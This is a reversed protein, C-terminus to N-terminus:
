ASVGKIITFNVIPTDSATGAVSVMTVRFSTGNTIQSCNAIYTNTGGRVTLVVTDTVAIGTNPVTFSFYTGVVAAATFVTIAGCPDAGTTPTTTTRSITQTVATGAGTAYGIGDTGSSLISGSSAISGVVDLRVAPTVTGLGVRNNGADVYLTNTDVTLDASIIASGVVDLKATPTDIGIGVSGTASVVFPSADPSTSDEVVLANGTGIQTITLGASVSDLAISAAGAVDLRVTPSSIGIGVFGAATVVFPTSDPSASDEVLLANGAGTQTIKLGNSASSLAINVPGAVDLLASPSETGIGVNGVSDIRMREAYTSAGTRTHFVLHNDYNSATSLSAITWWGQTGVANESVLRIASYSDTTESDNQITILSSNDLTDTGTGYTSTNTFYTHLPSVPDTTGIGVNGVSDIRMREAGNTEVTVTNAAPFRISTNSDGSHVIKDAIFLDGSFVGTTGEITSQISAGIPTGNISGGTIAVSNADQTSMTGLGLNTRANPATSAGTGGASIPLPITTPTGTRTAAIVQGLSIKVSTGAQVGEFLEEGSLAAVAPLNPIQVNAM